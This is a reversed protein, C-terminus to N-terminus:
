DERLTPIVRGEVTSAVTPVHQSTNPVEFVGDEYKWVRLPLRIEYYDRSPQKGVEALGMAVLRVLVWNLTTVVVSIATDFM